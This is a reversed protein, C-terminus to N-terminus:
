EMSTIRRVAVGYESMNGQLKVKKAQTFQDPNCVSQSDDEAVCMSEADFFLKAAYGPVDDQTYVLYWAEPDQPAPVGTLLHGEFEFTFEREEGFEGRSCLISDMYWGDNARLLTVIAQGAMDQDRSFVLVQAKESSEYLSKTVVKKPIPNQCIVPDTGENDRAAELSTRLAPSLLPEKDLGETYPDTTTSQVAQLWPSYFDSVIDIVDDTSVVQESVPTLGVSPVDGGKFVIMLLGIVAVAVAISIVVKKNNEM